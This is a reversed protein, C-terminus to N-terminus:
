DVEMEVRHCCEPNACEIVVRKPRDYIWVRLLEGDCKECHLVMPLHEYLTTVKPM